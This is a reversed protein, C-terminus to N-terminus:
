ENNEGLGTKYILHVWHNTQNNASLTAGSTLLHWGDTLYEEVTNEFNTCDEERVIKFARNKM